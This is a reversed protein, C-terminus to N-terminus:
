PTVVVSGEPEALEHEVQQRPRQRAIVEYRTQQHTVGHRIRLEASSQMVIRFAENAQSLKAQHLVRVDRNRVHRTPRRPLQARQSDRRQPQAGYACGSLLEQIRRELMRADLAFIEAVHIDAHVATGMRVHREVRLFDVLLEHLLHIAGASARHKMREVPVRRLQHLLHVIRLSVFSNSLLVRCRLCKWVQEVLHTPLLSVPNSARTHDTESESRHTTRKHTHAPSDSHTQDHM